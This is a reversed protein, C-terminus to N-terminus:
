KAEPDSWRSAKYVTKMTNLYSLGRRRRMNQSNAQVRNAEIFLITCVFM